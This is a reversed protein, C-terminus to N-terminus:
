TSWDDVVARDVNTGTNDFGDASVWDNKHQRVSWWFDSNVHNMYILGNATMFWGSISVGNGFLQVVAKQAYKPLKNYLDREIADGFNGPASYFYVGGATKEQYKPDESRWDETVSKIYRKM